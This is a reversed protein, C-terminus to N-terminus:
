VTRPSFAILTPSNHHQPPLQLPTEHLSENSANFSTTSSMPDIFRSRPPASHIALQQQERYLDALNLHVGNTNCLVQTAHYSSESDISILSPSHSSQM